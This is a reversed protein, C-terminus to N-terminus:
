THRRSRHPPRAGARRPAALALPGGGQAPRQGTPCPPAPARGAARKLPQQLLLRRIEGFSGARYPISLGEPVEGGQPCYWVADIGANQAGMMDSTLSDGILLAEEKAFGPIRSFVYDFYRVDPKAAGADESVFYSNVYNLLGPGSWGPKKPHRRQWQHRHVARVTGLSGAGAGAAGPLLAGGQGLNKFYTENIQEPDGSLGTEALFDRFRGTFLQSKECEGRELKKWWRNNCREYIELLEPAYPRQRAFCTEFTAQFAHLMDQDFDLLTGDADLLM